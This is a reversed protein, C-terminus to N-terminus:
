NMDCYHSHSISGCHIGFLQHLQTLPRAGAPVGDQEQVIDLEAFPDPLANTQGKKGSAGKGDLFLVAKGHGLRLGDPKFLLLLQEM